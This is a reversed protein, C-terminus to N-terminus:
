VLNITKIDLESDDTPTNESDFICYDLKIEDHIRIYLSKGIQGTTDITYSKADAEEEPLTEAYYLDIKENKINRFKKWDKNNDNKNIISKFKGTGHNIFGVYYKYMLSKMNVIFNNLKLQGFAVATKPTIAYRSYTGGDSTEDVLNINNNGAFVDSMNKEVFKSRSSNGAKFIYVNKSSYNKIDSFSKDMENKFANVTEKIIEDLETEIDEVDYALDVTIMQGDLDFLDCKIPSKVMDDRGEFIPRSVLENIKNMNARTFDSPVVLKEPMEDPLKEGYPQTIPINDECMNKMNKIYTKFSMREILKEGGIDERGGVGLIDIILDDDTNTATGYSFDLTGGGFDYVAFMKQEDEDITFHKSGCLAGIYAIPESFKMKVDVRDRLTTPVSRKLGYKLSNELTQKIKNNFKVPSTIQFETFIKEHKSVDNIARGILYGYLAVADLHSEDQKEPDTTIYIYKRDKSNFPNIDIEKGEQLIQYPIMKILTLIANIEKKQADGLLEKVNYGFDFDDRMKSDYNEAIGKKIIPTYQNEDKWEEYLNEWNFIMLNTPNEYKRTVNADSSDSNSITLLEIDKDGKIAVCTSSTGFDVSAPNPSVLECYGPNTNRVTIIIPFKIIREKGINCDCIVEIDGNFQLYKSKLHEDTFAKGLENTNIPIIVNNDDKNMIIKNTTFNQERCIEDNIKKFNIRVAVNETDDGYINELDLFEIKFKRKGSNAWIGHIKSMLNEQLIADSGLLEQDTIDSYKVTPVPGVGADLSLIGDNTWDELKKIIEDANDISVREEDDCFYEMQMKDNFNPTSIEPFSKGNGKYEIVVEQDKETFKLNIQEIKGM